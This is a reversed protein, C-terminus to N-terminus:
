LYLRRLLLQALCEQSTLQSHVRMEFVHSAPSIAHSPLNIHLFQFVFVKFFLKTINTVAM